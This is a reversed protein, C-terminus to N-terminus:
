AAGDDLLSVVPTFSPHMDLESGDRFPDRYRYLLRKLHHM